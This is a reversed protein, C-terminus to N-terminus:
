AERWLACTNEKLFYLIPRINIKGFRIGIPEALGDGFVTIFISISLMDIMYYHNFVGVIPVLM